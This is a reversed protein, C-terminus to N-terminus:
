GRCGVVHRSSPVIGALFDVALVVSVASEVPPERLVARV